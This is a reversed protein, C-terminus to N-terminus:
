EANKSGTDTENHSDSILSKLAIFKGDKEYLRPVRKGVLCSIEYNITKLKAAMHDATIVNDGSAGILVVEDGQKVEEIHSVDIHCMDMCVRGVIPAYKGRVLVKFPPSHPKNSGLYRRYGDAYGVPLTAIKTGKAEQTIYEGGYSITHGPSLEKLQVIETKWSMIPKLGHVANMDVDKSPWFGYLSIGMRFTNLGAEFDEHKYIMSADIIGASNASHIMKPLKERSKLKELCTRFLKMQQKTHTKDSEDAKSFHTFVGEMEAINSNPISDLLADLSSPLLGIRGMGTDVKLHYKFPGPKRLQANAQVFRQISAFDAVTPILGHALLSKETGPASLGLIQIEVDKGVLPSRRLCIGLMSHPVENIM